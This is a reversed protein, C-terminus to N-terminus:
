QKKNFVKENIEENIKQIKTEIRNMENNKYTQNNIEENM